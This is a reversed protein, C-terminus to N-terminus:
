DASGDRKEEWYPKLSWDFTARSGDQVAQACDLCSRLEERLRKLDAGHFRAPCDALRREAKTLLGIVGRMNNREAHVFAAAVQIVAQYFTRLTQDQTQRWLDELAEHAQWHAGQRYLQLFNRYANPHTVATRIHGAYGGSAVPWM